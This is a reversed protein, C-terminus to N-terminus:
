GRFPSVPGVSTWHQGLAVHAVVDPSVRMPDWLGAAESCGGHPKEKCDARCAVCASRCMMVPLRRLGERFRM